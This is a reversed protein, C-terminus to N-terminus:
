LKMIFALAYFPPLANGAGTAGGHNHDPVAHSHNGANWTDGAIRHGHSDSGVDKSGDDAGDTCDDICMEKHIQFDMHHGHDGAASTSLSQGGISHSHSSSGGTQGVTYAGGAGIVFRGRLDPTGNSGDCLAWGSPIANAAGSWMIIGGTPIGSGGGSGGSEASAATLAYPVSAIRQRPLMEEDDGVTIGLWTSPNQSFFEPTLPSHTGLLLRFHGGTVAAQTTDKNWTETWLAQGGTPVNYIRFVINYTGDPLAVGSSDTLYGEYHVLNPPPAAASLAPALLLFAFSLWVFLNRIMMM